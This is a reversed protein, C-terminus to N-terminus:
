LYYLAINNLTTASLFVASWLVTTWLFSFRDYNMALSTPIIFATLGLNFGMMLADSVGEPPQNLDGLSGAVMLGCGLLVVRNM